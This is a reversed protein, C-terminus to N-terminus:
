PDIVVEQCSAFILRATDMCHRLLLRCFGASALLSNTRYKNLIVGDRAITVIYPIM